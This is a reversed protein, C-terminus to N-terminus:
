DIEEYKANDLADELEEVAEEKSILDGDHDKLYRKFLKLVDKENVYRM